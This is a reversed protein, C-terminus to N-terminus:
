NSTGYQYLYPVQNNKSDLNSDPLYRNGLGIDGDNALENFMLNM